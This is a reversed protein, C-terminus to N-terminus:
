GEFVVAARVCQPSVRQRERLEPPQADAAGRPDVEVLV